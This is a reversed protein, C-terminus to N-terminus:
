HKNKQEMQYLDFGDAWFDKEIKILKFGLKEYFKFVLQTTRVVLLDIGDNKNLHKIRHETLKRGVGKGQSNPKVMDWSIRATKEDPFYNIGGAGVIEKNEEAVFYDEIENELYWVYDEKESKDFFEPTNMDLLQIVAEKDNSIYKRIKL